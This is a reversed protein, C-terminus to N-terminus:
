SSKPLNSLRMSAIGAMLLVFGATMLAPGSGVQIPRGYIADLAPRLRLFAEVPFWVAAASLLAVGTVAMSWPLRRLAPYSLLVAGLCVAIATTQLIFEPTRLLPPTWAPPLMALAAPAALANALWRLAKPLRLEPRHALLSLSLSLAVLPLYFLERRVAIQGSRVEAVFKVYEALDLGLVRLGAPAAWVWAGWYGAAALLWGLVILGTATRPGLFRKM